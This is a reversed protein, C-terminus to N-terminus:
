INKDLNVCCSPSGLWEVSRSVEVFTMDGKDVFWEDAKESASDIGKAIVYVETGLNGTVKYLNENAEM